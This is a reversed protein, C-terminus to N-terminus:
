KTKSNETEHLKLYLNAVAEELSESCEEFNNGNEDFKSHTVAWWVKGIKKMHSIDDGCAEILETLTPLRVDNWGAIYYKMPPLELGAEKLKKALEHDM